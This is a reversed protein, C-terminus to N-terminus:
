GGSHTCLSRWRSFVALETAVIWGPHYLLQGWLKDLICKRSSLKDHMNSWKEAFIESDNSHHWRLPWLTVYTSETNLQQSVSVLDVLIPCQLLEVTNWGNKVVNKEQEKKSILQFYRIQRSPFIGEYPQLFLPYIDM